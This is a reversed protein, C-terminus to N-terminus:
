ESLSTGRECAQRLKKLAAREIQRVRERSLGFRDGVEQLTHDRSKGIGFRLRIMEQERPKLRKLMQRLRGAMERDAAIEDPLPSQNDAVTGGLTRDGEGGRNRPLELSLPQRIINAYRDVDEESIELFRALVEDEPSDGQSEILRDRSISVKRHMAVVYSPVRIERSTNELARTILSRIWWAAYTVFRHGRRYDFKEIARLLGIYGEQMLDQLSLGRGLYKRAVRTVIGINARILEERAADSLSLGLRIRPDTRHPIKGSVALERFAALLKRALDRHQVLHRLVRKREGRSLAEREARELQEVYWTVVELRRPTLELSPQPETTDSRETESLAGLLAARADIGSSVLAELILTEGKEFQRALEVEGERTLPARVQLAHILLNRARNM